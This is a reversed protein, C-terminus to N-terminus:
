QWFLLETEEEQFAKNWDWPSVFPCAQTESQAEISCFSPKTMGMQTQTQTQIDEIQLLSALAETFIPCEETFLLDNINECFWVILLERTRKALRDIKIQRSDAINQVIRLLNRRNMLKGLKNSLFISMPGYLQAVERRRFRRQKEDANRM